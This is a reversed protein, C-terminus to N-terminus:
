RKGGKIQNFPNENTKILSASGDKNEKVIINEIGKPTKVIIFGAAGSLDTFNNKQSISSQSTPLAFVNGIFVFILFVLTLLYNVM